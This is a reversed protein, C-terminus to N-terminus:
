IKHESLALNLAVYWMASLAFGSALVTVYSGGINAISSGYFYM